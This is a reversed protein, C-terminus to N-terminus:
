RPLDNENDPFITAFGWQFTTDMHPQYLAGVGSALLSGIALSSDHDSENLFSHTARSSHTMRMLRPLSLFGAQSDGTIRLCRLHGAVHGCGM